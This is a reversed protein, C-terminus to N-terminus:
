GGSQLHGTEAELRERTAKGYVGPEDGQVGRWVQYTRVADEVEENFHGHIAHHYIYVAKLRTQLEVVEPGRDGRRLVQADAPRASDTARATSATPTPSATKSPSPWASSSSPTPTPSPSHTASPSPTASPSASAAATPSPASANQEATTPDPVAERVDEPLASDRSPTDYSFLGGAFGAAAVVAVAAGAAGLLATRRRRTRRPDKADAPAPRQGDAGPEEGHEADFLSLDHADPAAGTAGPPVPRLTMTAEVPTEAPPPATDKGGAGLDVYPRIRLPDFDEAAAQEATRADRLADSARQACACSPTNDAGRLAGCDPCATGKPEAM